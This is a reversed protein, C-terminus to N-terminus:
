QVLGKRRVWPPENSWMERFCAEYGLLYVPWDDVVIWRPKQPEGNKEHGLLDRINECRDQVADHHGREWSNGVVMLTTENDHIHVKAAADWSAYFLLSPSEGHWRLAVTGDGFRVGDAVVAGARHLELRAASM